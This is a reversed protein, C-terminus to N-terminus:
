GNAVSGHSLGDRSLVERVAASGAIAIPRVAGAQLLADVTAAYDGTECNWGHESGHIAWGLPTSNFDADKAELPPHLALLMRAMEANGHFAAWHLPTGQHQGTADVPLGCDLMLRLVNTENNRAAHAM